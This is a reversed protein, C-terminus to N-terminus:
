WPLSERLTECVFSCLFHSNLSEVMQLVLHGVLVVHHQLNFFALSVSIQTLNHDPVLVFKRKGERFCGDAFLSAAELM